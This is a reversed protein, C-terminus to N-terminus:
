RADSPNAKGKREQSPHSQFSPIQPQHLFLCHNVVVVVAAAAVLVFIM